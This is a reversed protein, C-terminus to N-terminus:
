LIRPQLDRDTLLYNYIIQSFKSRPFFFEAETRLPKLHFVATDVMDDLENLEM